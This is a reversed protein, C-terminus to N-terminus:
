EATNNKTQRASKVSGNAGAGHRGLRDVIEARPPTAAADGWVQAVFRDSRGTEVRNLSARVIGSVDYDTVHISPFLSSYTKVPRPDGDHAGGIHRALGATTPSFSPARSQWPSANAALLPFGRASQETLRGTRRGPSADCRPDFRLCVAAGM